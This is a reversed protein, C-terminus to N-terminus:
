EDGVDSGGPEAGPPDEVTSGDSGSGQQDGPEVLSTDPPDGDDDSGCAAGSLGLATVLALAALRRRTTM